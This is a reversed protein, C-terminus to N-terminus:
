LESSVHTLYSDNLILWIIYIVWIIQNMTTIQLDTVSIIFSYEFYRWGFCNELEPPTQVGITRNPSRLFSGFTINESKANMKRYMENRIEISRNFCLSSLTNRETIAEIGGRYQIRFYLNFFQSKLFMSFNLSYTTTFSELRGSTHNMFKFCVPPNRSERTISSTQLDIGTFIKTQKPTLWGKLNLILWQFRWLFIM